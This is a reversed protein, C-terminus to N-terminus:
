GAEDETLQNEGCDEEDYIGGLVASAEVMLRHEEFWEAMKRQEPEPLEEIAKEIEMLSIM